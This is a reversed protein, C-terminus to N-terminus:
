RGGLAVWRYYPNDPDRELVGRALTAAREREGAMAALSARYFDFLEARQANVEDRWPDSPALPVESALGLLRPLVRRIEGRRTWAAYEIRPRDDTVAPADGAFRELGARDLLYTGLLAAPSEVGVEALADRVAPEAFRTAVTAGDLALPRDSGILLVEHIETSWASAYPFVDLFSRVLSRSDEENQTPLPWWQAMLGGPELRARVLEYFDRSYLNAVGAASPPPPELTVLDYRQTRALLEHRGDGIRIEIRPDTAAGLNGAFSPGAAVVAALLEAVVRRELGPAPLLAGVTIGTGFGVVLSSRAEGAHVLLPLLAQLRMYRLSTPADGSNSVGQIYLRRFSDASAAQELVAVTGGVDERYFVLEGGKEEALLRALLDRPTLLVPVLVAAVAAAALARSRGKPGAGRVIALAGLLAGALALAGLARVLGLAPVLLFGALLTGVIGGATNLAAVRGVDRGVRRAGAALRAAAPFAAGLLLTPLLLVASSAVLFRAIVELTESGSLRSMWTGVVAQADPLWGGLSAVLAISSAAAAALLLGFTRWPDHRARSWRAFLLSGLALGTLYTALMVAFAYARTSLFQVLLESWVVEYGLAVGGAVAYLGLAFRAGPVPAEEPEDVEAPREVDGTARRDLAIAAGAVALGVAGAFLGTGRIGFAPILAFPTALTGLVAGVTNAGYLLGTAPAVDADGPALARLLAPLTGGMLFSPLGVLAFPLAWALPGAAARLAVFLPASLSLAFTAVVGLLAVGAELLAYFRIPRARRDAVRGLLASGLALGAFFAALAITVAHVEVGVVRGLQKVWVTEYVLAAFGSALLLLALRQTGRASARAARERVPSSVERGVTKQERKRRRNRTM